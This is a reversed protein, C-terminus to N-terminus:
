DRRCALRGDSREVRAGGPLWVAGQGRWREVLSRLADVHASTVAAGAQRQAWRQLARARLAPALALLHEVSPEDPLDPALADLADADERLQGASRALARATGPGLAAQLAPLLQRVRM